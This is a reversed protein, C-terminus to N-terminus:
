PVRIEEWLREQRDQKVYTGAKFIRRTRMQYIGGGAITQLELVGSSRTQLHLRHQHRVDSEALGHTKVVALAM